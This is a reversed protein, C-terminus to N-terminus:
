SVIGISQDESMFGMLDRPTFPPWEEHFGEDPVVEATDCMDPMDSDESSNASLSASTASSLLPLFSFKSLFNVLQPYNRPSPRRRGM